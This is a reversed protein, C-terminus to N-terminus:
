RNDSKGEKVMGLLALLLGYSKADEEQVLRYFQEEYSSYDEHLHVMIAIKRLMAFASGSGGYMAVVPDNRITEKVSGMSHVQSFVEFFYDPVVPNFRLVPCQLSGLSEKEREKLLYPEYNDLLISGFLNQDIVIDTIGDEAVYLSFRLGPFEKLSQVAGGVPVTTIVLFKTDSGALSCLRLFDLFQGFEKSGREPFKTSVYAYGLIESVNTYKLGSKARTLSGYGQIDFSYKKSELFISELYDPSVVYIIELAGEKVSGPAKVEL